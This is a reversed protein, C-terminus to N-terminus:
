KGGRYHARARWAPASPPPMGSRYAQADARLLGIVADRSALAVCAQTLQAQLLELEQTKSALLASMRQQVKALERLLVLNEQQLGMLAHQLSLDESRM